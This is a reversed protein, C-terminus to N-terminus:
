MICSFFAAVRKKEVLEVSHRLPCDQLRRRRDEQYHEWRLELLYAITLVCIMVTLSMCLFPILAM